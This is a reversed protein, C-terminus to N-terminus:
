LYKGLVVRYAPKYAARYAESHHVAPYDQNKLTRMLEELGTVYPLSEELYSELRQHDSIFTSSTRFFAALLSDLNGGAAMFPGLHVRVLTGDPSIPDLAPEPYPELLDKLESELWKQVAEPHIVAHANGLAAQHILKYADQAQMAPYRLLHNSLISLFNM